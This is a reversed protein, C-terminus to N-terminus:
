VNKNIARTRFQNKFLCFMSKSRETKADPEESSALIKPIHEKNIEHNISYDLRHNKELMHLISSPHESEGILKPQRQKPRSRSLSKHNNSNLVVLSNNRSQDLKTSNNTEAYGSPHNKGDRKMNPIM